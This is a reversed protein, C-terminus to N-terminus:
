LCCIDGNRLSFADSAAEALVSYLENGSEEYRGCGLVGHSLVRVDAGVCM